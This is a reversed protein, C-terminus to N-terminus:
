NKFLKKVEDITNDLLFSIDGNLLQYYNVEQCNVLDVAICYKPNIKFKDSYNMMLYRYMIDTFMGLESKNFGDKKIVFWVAGIEEFGNKSFAFVHSPNSEILVDKIKLISKDKPKKLFTLKGAPKISTMDYEQFAFLAFLIDINKQWRQKTLLHKTRKIRNRLDDIKEAILDESDDIFLNIIASLCSVWYNGGSGDAKKEKEKQTSKLVTIKARDLKKRRFDILKDVPIKKM